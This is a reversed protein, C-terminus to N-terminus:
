LNSLYRLSVAVKTDLTKSDVPMNEKQRISLNTVANSSDTRYVCRIPVCM